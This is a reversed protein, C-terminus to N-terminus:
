DTNHHEIIRLLLIGALPDSLNDVPFQAWFVGEQAGSAGPLPSVFRDECHWRMLWKADAQVQEGCIGTISLVTVRKGNDLKAQELRPPDLQGSVTRVGPRSETPAFSFVLIQVADNDSAAALPLLSEDPMSRALLEDPPLDSAGRPLVLGLEGLEEPVLISEEPDAHGALAPLNDQAQCAFFFGTEVELHRFFWLLSGAEMRNEPQQMAKLIKAVCNASVTGLCHALQKRKLMYRNWPQAFGNVGQDLLMDDHAAFLTEGCTQVVGLTDQDIVSTILVVPPAFYRAKPGWGGCHSAIAWLQGPVPNGTHAAALPPPASQMPPLSQLLERNQRCMPCIALHRELEPGAQGALHQDPPCCRMNWVHLWAQALRDHDSHHKM